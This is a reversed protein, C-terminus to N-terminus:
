SLTSDTHTLQTNHHLQMQCTVCFTSRVDTFSTVCAEGSLVTQILMSLEVYLHAAYHNCTSQMTIPLEGASFIIRNSEAFIHITQISESPNGMVLTASNIPQVTNSKSSDTFILQSSQVRKKLRLKSAIKQIKLVTLNIICNKFDDLQNCLTVSTYQHGVKWVVDSHNFHGKKVYCVPLLARTIPFYQVHCTSRWTRRKYVLHSTNVITRPTM